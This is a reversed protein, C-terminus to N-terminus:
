ITGQALLLVKQICLWFYDKLVAMHSGFVFAFMGGFGFVNAALFIKAALPYFNM